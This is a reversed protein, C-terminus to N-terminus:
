LGIQAKIRAEMEEMQNLDGDSQQFEDSIAQRIKRIRNHDYLALFPQGSSQWLEAREQRPQAFWPDIDIARTQNEIALKLEDTRGYLIGRHCWHTSKDPNLQIALDLDSKAADYRHMRRFRDGRLGYAGDHAPDLNIAREYAAIGEEYQGTIGTQRCLAYGLGVWMEQDDANRNIGAEFARRMQEWVDPGYQRRGVKINLYQLGIYPYDGIKIPLETIDLQVAGRASQTATLYRGMDDQANLNDPLHARCYYAWRVTDSNGDRIARSLKDYAERYDGDVSLLIADDLHQEAQQHRQNAPRVQLEMLHSHIKANLSLKTIPGGNPEVVMLLQDASDTAGNQVLTEAAVFQLERVRGEVNGAYSITRLWGAVDGIFASAHNPSMAFRDLSQGLEQFVPRLADSLWAGSHGLALTADLLSFPPSERDLTWDNLHQFAEAYEAPEMLKTAEHAMNVIEDRGMSGPVGDILLRAATALLTLGVEGRISADSVGNPLNADGLLQISQVARQWARGPATDILARTENMMAIAREEPLVDANNFFEILDDPEFIGANGLLRRGLERTIDDPEVDILVLTETARSLAVRLRDIATRRSHHELEPSDIHASFETNLDKLLTGANLVCVAQYELGKVVDPTLVMHRMREPLWHPVSDSPSVVALDPVENLGELLSVAADNHRVDVYLLSAEFPEAGSQRQQNAPRIARDLGADVYLQSANDIVQAIRDPTRLNADLAFEQPPVLRAALLENLRPWEFGSPRVTQGEDGALLLWPADGRWRASARCLEVLVAIEALTLDQVEDVAIRDFQRLGEAIEDRRLRRIAEFSAALEPFVSHPMLHPEILRVINLLTSAAREGIGDGRSRIRFYEDDGLRWLSESFRTCGPTGPIARGLLIARLESYLADERNAWPGLVNGGIRAQALVASFAARSQAYSPRAVDYGCISGLITTFDYDDVVVGAPAFTALREKALRTLERSWTVYLVRQNQRTEVARWLTTTKGSGPHGYLLRVPSEDNVFRRQNETWPPSAFTEDACNIDHQGLEYYEDGIDSISLTEHNDHHRVARVWIRNDAATAVGHTPPSGSPAWWLYYQMGGNGGLPSRRWGRNRGTCGKVVGTRGHAALQQLILGLRRRLHPIGDLAEPVSEHLHVPHNLNGFRFRTPDSITDPRFSIPTM